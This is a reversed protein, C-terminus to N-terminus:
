PQPPAPPTAESPTTKVETKQSVTTTQTTEVTIIDPVPHTQLFKALSIMGSFMFAVGMLELLHHTGGMGPTFDHSPDIVIAGFGGAIASAGGSILAGFVGLLWGPWDLRKATKFMQM